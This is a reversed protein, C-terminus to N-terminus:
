SQRLRRSCHSISRFCLKRRNRVRMEKVQRQRVGFAEMFEKLQATNIDGITRILLEPSFDVLCMYRLKKNKDMAIEFPTSYLLWQENFEIWVDAESLAATLLEVPIDPDAAKGVGKPTAITIVAPFGGVSHVAAAVAQILVPNSKTDATIAVTEKEKVGFVERILKDAAKQLEFELM